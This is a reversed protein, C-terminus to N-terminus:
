CVARGSYWATSAAAALPWERHSSSTYLLCRISNTATVGDMWPLLLDMLGVDPRLKRALEVAAAGDAAEGVITIDADMDLFIRLGQRVVAHDDVVLVRISM